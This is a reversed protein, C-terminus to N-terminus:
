SLVSIGVDHIYCFSTKVDLLIIMVYFYISDLMRAENNNIQNFKNRFFDISARSAECQIMKGFKNFLNMFVYDYVSMYFEGNISM